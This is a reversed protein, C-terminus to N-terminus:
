GIPSHGDQMNLIWEVGMAYLPERYLYNGIIILATATVLVHTIARQQHKFM